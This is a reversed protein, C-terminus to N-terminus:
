KKTAHDKTKALYGVLLESIKKEAEIINSSHKGSNTIWISNNNQVQQSSSTKKFKVSSIKVTPIASNIMSSDSFILDFRELDQYTILGKTEINKLVIKKRSGEAISISICKELSIFEYKKLESQLTNACFSNIKSKNIKKRAAIKAKRREEINKDIDSEEKKYLLTSRSLPGKPSEWRYLDRLTTIKAVSYKFPYARDCDEAAEGNLIRTECKVEYVITEVKSAPKGTTSSIAQAISNGLKKLLQIEQTIKGTNEPDDNIDKPTLPITILDATERVKGYTFISGLGINNLIAHYNVTGIPKQPTQFTKAKPIPLINDKVEGTGACGVLFVSFIFLRAIKYIDLVTAKM